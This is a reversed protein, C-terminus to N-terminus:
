NLPTEAYFVEEWTCSQGQDNEDADAGLQARQQIIASEGNSLTHEYIRGPGTIEVKHKADFDVLRGDYINKPDNFNDDGDLKGTFIQLNIHDCKGKVDQAYMFLRVPTSGTENFISGRTWRTPRGPILDKIHFPDTICKRGDEGSSTIDVKATTIIGLSFNAQASFWANASGATLGVALLILFLSFFIKKM